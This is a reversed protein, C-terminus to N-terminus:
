IKKINVEVKDGKKANIRATDGQPLRVYLGDMHERLYATFRTENKTKM